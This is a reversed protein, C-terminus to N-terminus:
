RRNQHPNVSTDTYLRCYDRIPYKVLNQPSVAHGANGFGFQGAELTLHRQNAQNLRLAMRQLPAALIEDHAAHEMVLARGAQRDRRLLVEIVAKAAPRRPRHDIPHHLGLAHAQRMRHLQQAVIRRQVAALLDADRAAM